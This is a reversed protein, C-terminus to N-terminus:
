HQRVIGVSNEPYFDSRLCSSINKNIQPFMINNTTLLVTKILRHKQAGFLFIEVSTSSINM